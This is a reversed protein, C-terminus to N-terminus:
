LCSPELCTLTQIIEKLKRSRGIPFSVSCRCDRNRFAMGINESNSFKSHCSREAKRWQKDSGGRDRQDAFGAPALLLSVHVLRGWRVM